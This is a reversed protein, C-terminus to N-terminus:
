INVNCEKCTWSATQTDFYAADKITCSDWIRGCEYCENMAYDPAFAMGSKIQSWCFWCLRYLSGDHMELAKSIECTCWKCALPEM